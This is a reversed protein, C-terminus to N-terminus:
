NAAHVETWVPQPRLDYSICSGFSVRSVLKPETAARGKGTKNAISLAAISLVLALVAAFISSWILNNQARSPAAGASPRESPQILPQWEKDDAENIQLNFPLRQTDVSSTGGPDM